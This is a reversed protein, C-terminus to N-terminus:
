LEFFEITLGLNIGLSCRCARDKETEHFNKFTKLKVKFDSM